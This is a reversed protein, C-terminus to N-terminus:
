VSIIKKLLVCYLTVQASYARKYESNWSTFVFALMLQLSCKSLCHGSTCPLLIQFCMLKTKFMCM